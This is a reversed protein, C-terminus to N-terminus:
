QENEAVYQLIRVFSKGRNPMDPDIRVKEKWLQSIRARQAESLAAMRRDVYPQHDAPDYAEPLDSSDIKALLKELNDKLAPLKRGRMLTVTSGSEGQSLLYLDKPTIAPDDLILESLVQALPTQAIRINHILDRWMGEPTDPLEVEQAAVTAPAALCCLLVVPVLCRKLRNQFM